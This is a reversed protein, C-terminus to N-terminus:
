TRQQALTVPRDCQYHITLQFFDFMGKRIGDISFQCHQDLPVDYFHQISFPVSWFELNVTKLRQHPSPHWHVQSYPQNEPQLSDLLLEENSADRITVNVRGSLHNTINLAQAKACFLLGALVIPWM